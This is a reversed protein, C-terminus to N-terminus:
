GPQLVCLLGFAAWPALSLGLALKGLITRTENAFPCAGRSLFPSQGGTGFQAIRNEDM